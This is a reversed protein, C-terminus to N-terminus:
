QWKRKQCIAATAAAAADVSTSFAKVDAELAGEEAAGALPQQEQQM